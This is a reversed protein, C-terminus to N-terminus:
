RLKQLAELRLLQKDEETLTGNEIRSDLSGPAPGLSDAADLGPVAASADQSILANAVGGILPLAGLVKKGGTKMAKRLQTYDLDVPAKTGFIKKGNEQLAKANYERKMQGADYALEQMAGKRGALEKAAQSEADKFMQNVQFESGSKLPVVEGRRDIRDVPLDKTMPNRFDETMEPKQASLERLQKAFEAEKSIHEASADIPAVKQKLYKDM